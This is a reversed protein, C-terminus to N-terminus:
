MFSKVSDGSTLRGGILIMMAKDQQRLSDSASLQKEVVEGGGLRMLLANLCLFERVLCRVSDHEARVATSRGVFDVEDEAVLIREGTFDLLLM